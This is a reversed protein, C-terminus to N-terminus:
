TSCRCSSCRRRDTTGGRGRAAAHRAHASAVGVVIINQLNAIAQRHTLTAGKPQGTTGSTYLIALLDDEDVLGAADGPDDTATSAPRHVPTGARRRADGISSCTSSSASRRCGTARRVRHSARRRDAGQGRLRRPRVRAGRSKWWANSRYSRGRRPDRLAWCTIVWEPMTPRACRSAIAANSVSSPSVLRSWARAAITSASRTASTARCWGSSTRCAAREADMLERLSTMRQKYVQTPVGLVDEVVIEFPGDPDPSSPSRRTPEHTLRPRARGARRRVVM